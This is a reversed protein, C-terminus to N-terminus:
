ETILKIQDGARIRDNPGLANIIRLLAEQDGGAEMRRALSAVSDGSRATVVRVRLPEIGEREAASMRRFSSIVTEAAEAFAPTDDNSAFIFRYVRNDVEIVAVRFTWQGAAANATVVPLGNTLRGEISNRDLGEIWGSQLYAELSQGSRLQVGDFRLARGDRHAGLVAQETNDLRCGEPAEFSSGLGPHLFSQGRVVGEDAPHGFVMGDIASLYRERERTGIGPAGFQRALRTAVEIRSPTSPHSSLFSPVDDDLPLSDLANFRSMTELFRAAAFPDYGARGITRVGLEDAELEQNQSFQALSVGNALVAMQAASPDSLVDTLVRDILAATRVEQERAIAHRMTVHAIEHAVVAAVEAEDNALALLGRTVYLYGGPLAFANVTPSDLLTLRYVRGPEDSSAIVQRLMAVLRTELEPDEYIGGFAQIIRPHERAGIAEEAALTATPGPETGEISLPVLPGEGNFSLCGGLIALGAMALVLRLRRLATQRYSAEQRKM